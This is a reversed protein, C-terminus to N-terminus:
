NGLRPWSPAHDPVSPPVRAQQLEPTPRAPELLVLTAHTPGQPVPVDGKKDEVVDEVDNTIVGDVVNEVEAKAYPLHAHEVLIVPYAM